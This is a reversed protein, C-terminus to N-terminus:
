FRLVSIPSSPQGPSRTTAVNIRSAERVDQFGALELMTRLLDFALRSLRDCREGMYKPGTYKSNRDM